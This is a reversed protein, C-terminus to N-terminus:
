SIRVICLSMRTQQVSDNKNWQRSWNWKMEFATLDKYYWPEQRFLVPLLHSLSEAVSSWHIRFCTRFLIYLIWKSFVDKRSLGVDLFNTVFNINSLNFELNAEFFLDRHCLHKILYLIKIIMNKVEIIWVTGKWEVHLHECTKLYECHTIVFELRRPCSIVDM